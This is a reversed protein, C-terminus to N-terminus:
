KGRFRSAAWAKYPRTEAYLLVGRAFLEAEMMWLPQTEEVDHSLVALRHGAAHVRELLKLDIDPDATPEGDAGWKQLLVTGAPLRRLNEGNPDKLWSRNYGSVIFRMEPRAETAARVVTELVNWLLM